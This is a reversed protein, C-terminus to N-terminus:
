SKSKSTGYEKKILKILNIINDVEVGQKKLDNLSELVRKFADKTTITSVTKNISCHKIMRKIM